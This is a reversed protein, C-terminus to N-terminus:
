KAKGSANAKSMAYRTIQIIAHQTIIDQTIMYNLQTALMTFSSIHIGDSVLLRYRDSGNASNNLKKIGQIM